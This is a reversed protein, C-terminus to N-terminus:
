NQHSIHPCQIANPVTYLIASWGSVLIVTPDQGAKTGNDKV